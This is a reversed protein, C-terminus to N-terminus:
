GFLQKLVKRCDQENGECVLAWGEGRRHEISWGAGNERPVLRYDDGYSESGDPHRRLVIANAEIKYSGGVLTLPQPQDFKVMELVELLTLIEDLADQPQALGNELRFLIAAAIREKAQDRTM